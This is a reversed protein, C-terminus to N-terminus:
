RKKRWTGKHRHFGSAFLTANTLLDIVEHLKEAAEDTAQMQKIEARELARKEQEEQQQLREFDNLLTALDGSGVYESFVRSGRRVKRYFYTNGKRNELGM